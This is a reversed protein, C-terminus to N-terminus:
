KRSISIFVSWIRSLCWRLLYIYWILIDFWYLLDIFTSLTSSMTILIFSIHMNFFTMDTCYNVKNLCFLRNWTLTQLFDFLFFIFHWNSSFLLSYKRTKGFPLLELYTSYQLFLAQCQVFAFINQPTIPYRSQNDDELEVECLPDHTAGERKCTAQRPSSDSIEAVNVHAEIGQM